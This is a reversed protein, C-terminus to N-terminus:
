FTMASPPNVSASFPTALTADMTGAPPGLLQPSAAVATPATDVARPRRGHV